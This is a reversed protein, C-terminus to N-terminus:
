AHQKPKYEDANHDFDWNMLPEVGFSRLFVYVQGRHHLFEDHAFGFMAFGPYTAGWPTSVMGGFQADTAAHAAKDGITWQEQVFATLQEKTTIAAAAAKDDYQGVSGTLVSQPFAAVGTYMHVVIQKVSRMGAVPTADLKDAPIQDIVRLMLGHYMRMQDWMGLINQKNM